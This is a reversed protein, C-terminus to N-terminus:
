RGQSSLFAALDKSNNMKGRLMEAIIDHELLEPLASNVDNGSNQGPFHILLVPRDDFRGGSAREEEASWGPVLRWLPIRWSHDSSVIVTTRSAAPTANIEQLLAGLTDDALVLNDLYTGGPRLKHHQRDYIGPPHPVPLHLFVFSVQENELLARTRAMVNRYEVIHADEPATSLSTLKALLANPLVAANALASKQEAAGPPEMPLGLSPEWYCASLVSALIHCYPNYWGDVGTSWGNRQALAFLTANPDFALWRSQDEEKYWLDGVVTSRIQEIHRGLFLSPIILATHFGTPRLDSFSVSETSLRGFNPLKMGTIQHDFTQDYSLEDFLIWVIRRSSANVVPTSLHSATTSEASPRALAVHLLQPVIWLASFALAAIGLRIARVAPQTIRPLAYALMGSLLLIAICSQKRLHEQWFSEIQLMGSLQITLDAIRWLMLCAFITSFIRDPARPLYQIALLFGSALLAVGLMDLLAGGIMNTVPLGHLYVLLHDPAIYPLFPVLLLAAGIGEL